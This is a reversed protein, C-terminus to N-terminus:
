AFAGPAGFGHGDRSRPPAYQREYVVGDARRELRTQDLRTHGAPTISYVAEALQPQDENRFRADWEYLIHVIQGTRAALDALLAEDTTLDIDGYWIKGGPLCVNANFVVAQGPHTERYGTKSLGLLRGPPGLTEAIAAAHRAALDANM